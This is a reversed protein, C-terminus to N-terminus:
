NKVWKCLLLNRSWYVTLRLMVFERVPMDIRKIIFM